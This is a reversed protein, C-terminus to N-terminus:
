FKKFVEHQTVFGCKGCYMSFLPSYYRPAPVRDCNGCRNCRVSIYQTMEFFAM